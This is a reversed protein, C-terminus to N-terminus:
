DELHIRGVEQAACMARGPRPTPPSAFEAAVATAQLGAARPLSTPHQLKQTARQM